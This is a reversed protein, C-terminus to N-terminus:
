PLFRAVPMADAHRRHFHAVAARLKNRYGFFGFSIQSIKQRNGVAVLHQEHLAARGCLKSDNRHIQTRGAICGVVQHGTVPRSLRSLFGGTKTLRVDSQISCFVAVRADSLFALPAQRVLGCKKMVDGILGNAADTQRGHRYRICRKDHIHRRADQRFQNIHIVVPDDVGPCLFINPRHSQCNDNDM